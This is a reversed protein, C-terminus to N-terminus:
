DGAAAGAEVANNVVEVFTAKDAAPSKIITEGTVQALQAASMPKQQSEM